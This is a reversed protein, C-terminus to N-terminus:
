EPCKPLVRILKLTSGDAVAKQLRNKGEETKYDPRQTNNVSGDGNLYIVSGDYMDTVTIAAPPDVQTPPCPSHAVYM